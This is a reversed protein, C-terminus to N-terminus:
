YQKSRLGGTGVEVPGKEPNWILELQLARLDEEWGNASICRTFQTTEVFLLTM